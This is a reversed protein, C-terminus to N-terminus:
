QVTNILTGIHDITIRIEDGSRLTFDPNPVICTGTMLIVGRPFTCERFLFEVLEPHQRKMQSIRTEGEFVLGGARFIRMSIRTDAPIPHPTVYIGPGLGACGDFTKAQPLYLPNEGEISRSSVDNGIPYGVIKGATTLCLALEPEPVDWTSDRRIRVFGNTGVTREATAKFFLEPREAEYVKDYFAAAGSEQSEEMRATKSRLYTVGAAWVEQSGIPALIPQSGLWDSGGVPQLGALERGVAQYLDDRNVFADWDTHRSVFVQDDEEILIRQNTKYIKM